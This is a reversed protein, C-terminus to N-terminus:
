RFTVNAWLRVLLSIKGGRGRVLEKATENRNVPPKAGRFTEGEFLLKDRERVCFACSM